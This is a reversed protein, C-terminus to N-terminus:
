RAAPEMGKAKLVSAARPGALFGILTKGSDPEKAAASVGATYVIYHQLAAPIPGLFIAGEPPEILSSVAALGLEAEGTAVAQQTGGAVTQVRTKAKIEDTIGLREFLRPLYM